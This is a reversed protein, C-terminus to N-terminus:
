PNKESKKERRKQIRKSSFSFFNQSRKSNYFPLLYYYSSSFSSFAVFFYIELMYHFWTAYVSYYDLQIMFFDDLTICKTTSNWNERGAVKESDDTATVQRFNFIRRKLWKTDNTPSKTSEVFVNFNLRYIPWPRGCSHWVTNVITSTNAPRSCLGIYKKINM